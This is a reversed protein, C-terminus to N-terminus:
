KQKKKLIKKTQVPGKYTNVISHLLSDSSYQSIGANELLTKCKKHTDSKHVSIRKNSSALVLNTEKGNKNFYPLHDLHHDESYKLLIEDIKKKRKRLPNIHSQLRSLEKEINYRETLLGKINSM